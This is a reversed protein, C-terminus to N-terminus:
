MMGNSDLALANYDNSLYGPAPSPPRGSASEAVLARLLGIWVVAGEQRERKAKQRSYVRGRVEKYRHV